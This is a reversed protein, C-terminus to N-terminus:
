IVSGSKLWLINNGEDDFLSDWCFAESTLVLYPGGGNGNKKVFGPFSFHEIIALSFANEWIEFSNACAFISKREKIKVDPTGM